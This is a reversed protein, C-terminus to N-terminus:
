SDSNDDDYRKIIHKVYRVFDPRMDEPWKCYCQDIATRIAVQAEPLDFLEQVVPEPEVGDEPEAEDILEDVDRTTVRGTQRYHDILGDVTSDDAGSKHLKEVGKALAQTVHTGGKAM